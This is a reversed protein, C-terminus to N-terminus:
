QTQLDPVPIILWLLTRRLRARGSHLPSHAGNGMELSPCSLLPPVPAGLCPQPHSDPLLGLQATTGQQRDQPGTTGAM